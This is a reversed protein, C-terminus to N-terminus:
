KNTTREAKTKKKQLQFADRSLDPSQNPRQIIDWKKVKLFDQNAKVTHKPDIDMQVTFHRGDNVQIHASLIARYVESNIRSSRDTTVDDTFVLSGTGSAAMCPWAM